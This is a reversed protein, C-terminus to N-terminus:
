KTPAIHINCKVACASFDCGPRAGWISPTVHGFAKELCEKTYGLIEGTNIAVQNPDLPRHHIFQGHVELCIQLYRRTDIILEHWIADVSPTPAFSYKPDQFLAALAFFRKFERILTPYLHSAIRLKGEARVIGLERELPFEELFKLKTYTDSQIAFGPVLGLPGLEIQSM